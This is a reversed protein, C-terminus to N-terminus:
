LLPVSCIVTSLIEHYVVVSTVIETGLDFLTTQNATFHEIYQALQATSTSIFIANILINVKLAM